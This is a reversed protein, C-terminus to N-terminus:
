TRSGGTATTPRIMGFQHVGARLRTWDGLLLAGCRRPSKSLEFVYAQRHAPKRRWRRSTSRRFTGERSLVASKVRRRVIEMPAGADVFRAKVWAHGIGGPNTACRVAPVIDLAKKARLRTKLYEYVPLEFSTLEDIYLWHMETGAYDYM